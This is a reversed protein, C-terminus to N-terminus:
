SPIVKTIIHKALFCVGFVISLAVLFVFLMFAYGQSPNTFNSVTAGMLALMLITVGGIWLSILVAILGTLVKLFVSLFENM